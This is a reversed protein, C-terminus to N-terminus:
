RTSTYQSRFKLVKQKEVGTNTNNERRSVKFPIINFIDYKLESMDDIEKAVDFYQMLTNNERDDWEM